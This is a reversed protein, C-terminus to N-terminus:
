AAGRQQEDLFREVVGRVVVAMPFHHQESWDKLRQYLREPFRVPMTRLPGQPSLWTPAARPRPIAARAVLSSCLIASLRETPELEARAEEERLGLKSAAQLLTAGEALESIIAAPRDSARARKAVDRLAARVVDTDLHLESALQELPVGDRLRRLITKAARELLPLSSLAITSEFDAGSPAVPTTARGRPGSDTVLARELM